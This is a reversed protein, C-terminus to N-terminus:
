FLISQINELLSDLSFTISEINKLSNQINTKQAENLTAKLRRAFAGLDQTMPVIGPTIKQFIMNEKVKLLKEKALINM